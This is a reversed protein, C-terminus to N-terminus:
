LPTAPTQEDNHIYLAHVPGLEECSPKIGNVRTQPHVLLMQGREILHPNTVGAITVRRIDPYQLAEGTRPDIIEFTTHLAGIGVVLRDGPNLLRLDIRFTRAHTPLMTQTDRHPDVTNEYRIPQPEASVEQQHPLSFHDRVHDTHTSSLSQTGLTGNPPSPSRSPVKWISWASPVTTTNLLTTGKDVLWGADGTLVFGGTLLGLVCCCTFLSRM